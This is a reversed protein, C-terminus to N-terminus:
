YYRLYKKMIDCIGGIQTQNNQEYKKEMIRAFTDKM